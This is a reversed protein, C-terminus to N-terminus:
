LRGSDGDVCCPNVWVKDRIMEKILRFYSQLSFFYVRILSCEGYRIIKLYSQIMYVKVAWHDSYTGGPKVSLLEVNQGCLTNKHKTYIETCVADKESYLM